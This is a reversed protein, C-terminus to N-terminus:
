IWTSSCIQGNVFVRYDKQMFGKGFKKKKKHSTVSKRSGKKPMVAKMKDILTTSLDGLKEGLLKRAIGKALKLQPTNLRFEKDELVSAIASRIWEIICKSTSYNTVNLTM